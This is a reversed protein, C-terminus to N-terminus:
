YPTHKMKWLTLPADFYPVNEMDWIKKFLISLLYVNKVMVERDGSEDFVVTRGDPYRVIKIANIIIYKEGDNSTFIDISEDTKARIILAEWLIGAIKYLKVDKINEIIILERVIM